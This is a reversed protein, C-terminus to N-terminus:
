AVERDADRKRWGGQTKCGGDSACHFCPSGYPYTACMDPRADYVGCQRTEENWNKCTYYTYGGEDMQRVFDPNIGFTECREVAEDHTLPILMDAIMLEDERNYHVGVEVDGPTDDTWRRRM